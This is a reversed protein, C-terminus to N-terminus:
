LEASCLIAAQGPGGSTTELNLSVGTGSTFNNIGTGNCQICGINASNFVSSGITVTASRVGFQDVAIYGTGSVISTITPPFRMLVPLIISCHAQQSAGVYGMGMCLFGSSNTTSLTQSYFYRQCLQLEVAFPRLEFPTAITGKELQVGTINMYNNTAGWINAVGSPSVTFTSANTTNWANSAQTSGSTFGGIVVNL